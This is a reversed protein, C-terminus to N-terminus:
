TTQPCGMVGSQLGPEAAPPGARSRGLDVRVLVGPRITLAFKHVRSRICREKPARDPKDVGALVQTGVWPRNPGSPPWTTRMSSGAGVPLEPRRQPAPFPAATVAASAAVGSRPGTANLAGAGPSPFAMATSRRPQASPGSSTVTARGRGAGYVDVSTEVDTPWLPAGTGNRPTPRSRWGAIQASAWQAM